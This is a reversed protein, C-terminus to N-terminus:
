VGPNRLSMRTNNEAKIERSFVNDNMLITINASRAATPDATPVNDRDFFSFSMTDFNDTLLSDAPCAPTAATEPCTTTAINDPASPNALIRKHLHNDSDTFYIFENQYPNGTDSDFIFANTSDLAPTSLILILDANSTTWGGVPENIDTITNSLLVASGTRVDEVVRNLAIQAETVLRTQANVQLINAFYYFSISLVLVIVLTGATVAVIMEVLTFGSQNSNTNDLV